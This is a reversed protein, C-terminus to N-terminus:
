SEIDKPTNTESTSNSHGFYDFCWRSKTQENWYLIDGALQRVNCRRGSAIIARRIYDIATEDDARMLREFRAPSLKRDGAGIISALSRGDNERVESLVTVLRYILDSRYPGFRLTKALDHVEPECLVKTQSGRRLRAGLARARSKTDRPQINAKWWDLAIEAKPKEDKSM